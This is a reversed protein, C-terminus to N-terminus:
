LIKEKQTNRSEFSMPSLNLYSINSIIFCPTPFHLCTFLCICFFEIIYHIVSTEIQRSLRLQLKNWKTRQLFENMEYNAFFLSFAPLSNYFFTIELMFTSLGYSFRVVFVCCLVLCHKHSNGTLSSITTRKSKRTENKNKKWNRTRLRDEVNPMMSAHLLNGNRKLWKSLCVMCRTTFYDM